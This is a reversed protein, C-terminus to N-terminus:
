LLTSGKQSYNRFENQLETQRLNIIEKQKKTIYIYYKAFLIITNLFNIHKENPVDFIIELITM